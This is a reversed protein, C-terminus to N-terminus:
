NNYKVLADNVKKKGEDVIKTIEKANEKSENRYTDILEISETQYTVIADVLKQVSTPNLTSGYGAKLAARELDPSIEAIDEIGKNAGETMADLSETTEHLGKQATYVADMTTFVHENTTFFTVSRRYVQDKIDHTQKLKTVLTEGVNYGVTLNEAVDKILQYAKDEKAYANKAEDRALELRTKESNSADKAKYNDLTTQTRNLKTKANELNIEQLELVEYALIEANKVAFRFDVYGDMILDESILQNKTDESVDNFLSTIKDFRDHTSGRVLKMWWNQVKETLSIEGDQIDSLMKKSDERISDFMKTIKTYREGVNIDDVNDRVLENFGGMYRLTSAIAMVKPEDVSVVEQLLEALQYDGEEEKPLIGFENLVDVASDLYKQLTNAM